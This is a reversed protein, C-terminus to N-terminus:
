LRIFLISSWLNKELVSGQKDQHIRQYGSELTAKPTLVARFGVFTWNQNFTHPFLSKTLMFVENFIMAIIVFMIKIILILSTMTIIMSLIAVIDADATANGWRM